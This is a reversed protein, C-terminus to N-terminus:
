AIPLLVYIFICYICSNEYFACVCLVYSVCSVYFSIVHIFYYKCMWCGTLICEKNNYNLQTSAKDSVFSNQV